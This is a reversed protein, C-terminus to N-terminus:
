ELFNAIPIKRYNHYYDAVGAGQRNVVFFNYPEMTSELVIQKFKKYSGIGFESYIHKLQIENTTLFAIFSEANQRMITSAMVFSQLVYIMSCNAHNGKSSLKNLLGTPENIKFGEEGGCDDFYFLFHENPHEVKYRKHKKWLQMVKEPDYKTFVEIKKSIIYDDLVSWTDDELYSPCFIYIKKFKNVWEILMLKVMLTTKGMQSRASVMM